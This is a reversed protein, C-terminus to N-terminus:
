LFADSSTYFAAVSGPGAQWELGTALHFQAWDCALIAQHTQECEGGEWAPEVSEAPCGLM